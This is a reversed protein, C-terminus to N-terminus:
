LGESEEGEGGEKVEESKQDEKQCKAPVPYPMGGEEVSGASVRM